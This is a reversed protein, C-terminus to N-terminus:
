KIYEFEELIQVIKDSSLPNDDSHIILDKIQGEQVVLLAPINNLKTNLSESYYKTSINNLTELSYNDSLDLFTLDDILNYKKFTKYLEIEFNYCFENNNTGIYIFKNPNEIIYTDLESYNIVNVKDKIYPTDLRNITYNKYFSHAYFVCLLTIICIITFIIYNKLPVNRVEEKKKKKM